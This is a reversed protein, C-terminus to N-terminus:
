RKARSLPIFSYAAKFVTMRWLSSPLAALRRAKRPRKGGSATITWSQPSARISISRCGPIAMCAEVCAAVVGAVPTWLGAILMIGALAGVVQPAAVAGDPTAVACYLLAAGVLLRQILLGAGPPGGAFTSLLRQM